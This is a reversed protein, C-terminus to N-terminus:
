IVVVCGPALRNWGYPLSYERLVDGLYLGVFVPAVKDAENVPSQVFLLDQRIRKLLIEVGKRAGLKFLFTKGDLTQGM